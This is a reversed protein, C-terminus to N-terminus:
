KRHKELYEQIIRQIMVAMSVHRTAALIKLETHLAIPVKAFVHKGKKSLNTENTNLTKM